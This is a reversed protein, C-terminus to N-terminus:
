KVSFIGWGHNKSLLLEKSKGGSFFKQIGKCNSWESLAALFLHKNKLDGTIVFM